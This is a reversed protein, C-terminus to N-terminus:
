QIGSSSDLSAQFTPNPNFQNLRLIADLDLVDNLYPGLPVPVKYSRQEKEERKYAKVEDLKDLTTVSYCLM